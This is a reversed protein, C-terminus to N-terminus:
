ISIKFNIRMTIVTKFCLMSCIALMLMIIKHKMLGEMMMRVIKRLIM